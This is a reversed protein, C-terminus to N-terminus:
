APTTPFVGKNSLVSSMSSTLVAGAAFADPKAVPEPAPADLLVPSPIPTTLVVGEPSSKPENNVFSPSSASVAGVRLAARAFDDVRSDRDFVIWPSSAPRLFARVDSDIRARDPYSPDRNVAKQSDDKNEPADPAYPLRMGEMFCIGFRLREVS